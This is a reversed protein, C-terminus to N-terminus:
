RRLGLYRGLVAFGGFCALGEFVGRIFGDIPDGQVLGALWVLSGIAVAVLRAFRWPDDGFRGLGVDAFVDGAAGAIQPRVRAAALAPVAALALLVSAGATSAYTLTVWWGALATHFESAYLSLAAMTVLGFLLAVGTRRRIVILERTPIIREHRRRLARLLALLGAVFSIQPAVIIVAFALAGLPPDLTESPSGAFSLSAFLAAYVAGAVGLAAFASVAARRSVQAGLEGAFANAVERASGFRQQAEADSRLHDDAELLIRRRTRGTIGHATLERALEELYTM